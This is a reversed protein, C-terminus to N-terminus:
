DWTGEGSGGSVSPIGGGQFSGYYTGNGGGGWFEVTFYPGVSGFSCYGTNEYLEDLSYGNATYITGGSIGGPVSNIGWGKGTFKPGGDAQVYIWTYIFASGFWAKGGVSQNSDFALAANGAADVAEQPM